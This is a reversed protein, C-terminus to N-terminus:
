KYSNKVVQDFRVYFLSKGGLIYPNSKDFGCSVPTM